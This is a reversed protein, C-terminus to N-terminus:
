GSRPVPRSVLQTPRNGPVQCSTTSGPSRNVCAPAHSQHRPHRDLLHRGSSSSPLRSLCVRELLEQQSRVQLAPASADAESSAKMGVVSRKLYAIWDNKSQGILVYPTTFVIHYTALEPMWHRCSVSTGSNGRRAETARPATASSSGPRHDTGAPPRSQGGDRPARLDGHPVPEDKPSGGTPAPEHLDHRESRHPLGGAHRNDQRDQHDFFAWCTFYSTTLPSMPPGSPM